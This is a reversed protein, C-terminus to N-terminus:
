GGGKKARAKKARAKKARAKKAAPKPAAPKPAAPVSVRADPHAANWHERVTRQGPDNVELDAGPVVGLDLVLRGAKAYRSLLTAVDVSDVAPTYLMALPEASGGTTFGAGPTKKSDWAALGKRAGKWDDGATSVIIVRLHPASAPPQPEAPPPADFLELGVEAAAARVLAAESAKMPGLERHTAGVRRMNFVSVGTAPTQVRAQSRAPLGQWAADRIYLMVGKDESPSSGDAAVIAPPRPGDPWWSVLEGDPDYLRTQHDGPTGHLLHTVSDRRESKGLRTWKAAFLSVVVWRGPLCLAAPDETCPVEAPPETPTEVAPAQDVPREEGEHLAVGRAKCESRLAELLEAGPVVATMYVDLEHWGVEAGVIPEELHVRAEVALADWAAMAVWVRTEEEDEPADVGDDELDEGLEPEDGEEEEDGDEGEDEAPRRARVPKGKSTSAKAKKGKAKKAAAREAKVEGAIASLNVGFIDCAQRLNEGYQEGSYMPVAGRTALIEVIIGRVAGPKMTKLATLVLEEPRATAKQSGKKPPASLGRRKVVDVLVDHWSARTFTEAMFMWLTDSPAKKEAAEVVKAMATRVVARQREQRERIKKQEDGSRGPPAAKELGAAKLAKKLDDKKVLEHVGGEGDRAITIPPVSGKLLSKYSKKGDGIEWPKQSLDVYDASHSVNGGYHFVEKSAKASLVAHGKEKAAETRRQWDADKKASFCVPDTCTDASKVDAFLEPQAGTRKPCTTCPGANPVLGADGRDFPADALQLMYRGRIHNGAERAGMMDGQYDTHTIEKVAEIQLAEVPIRAILHATHPNLKGTFFADRAAPCLARYQLRHRVYGVPKGVSAAIEEVTAHHTTLLEGYGDAEELPHTDARQGNERLQTEIAKRDGMERISAPISTREAIKSARFRRAGAILQYRGGECPRVIVAQLVGNVRIDEALENLKVPDFYKRYNPGEDIDALAITEFRETPATGDM